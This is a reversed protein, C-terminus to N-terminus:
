PVQSFHGGGKVTESAGCGLHWFDLSPPPQHCLVVEEAHRAHYTGMCQVFYTGGGKEGLQLLAGGSLVLSFQPLPASKPHNPISSCSSGRSRLIIIM